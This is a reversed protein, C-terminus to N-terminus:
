ATERGLELVILAVSIGMVRFRAFRLVTPLGFTRCGSWGVSDSLTGWGLYLPSLQLSLAFCDEM